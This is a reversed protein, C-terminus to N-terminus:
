KAKHLHDAVFKADRGVGGVLGSTLGYQFVLGVFYLGPFDESIGRNTKPWGSNGAVDFKIWSFDPKYGTAWVISTVTLTQGNDLLPMGEHVGKLRSLQKIGAKEVERM